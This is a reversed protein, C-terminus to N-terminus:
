SLVFSFAVQSVGLVLESRTLIFELFHLRVSLAEESLKEDSIRTLEDVVCDIMGEKKDWKVIELGVRKQPLSKFIKELIVLSTEVCRDLSLQELCKHLFENQQHENESLLRELHDIAENKVATPARDESLLDWFIGLGYEKEEDGREFRVRRAQKSFDSIFQLVQPNYSPIPLASIRDFILDIQESSVYELLDLILRFVVVQLSEHLNNNWIRNLLDSEIPRHKAVFLIIRSGQKVAQEHELSLIADIIGRKDLFDLLYETSISPKTELDKQLAAERENEELRLSSRSIPEDMSLLYDDKYIDKVIMGDMNYDDIQSSRPPSKPSENAFIVRTMSEIGKLRAEFFPLGLYLHSIELKFCEIEEILPHLSAEWAMQSISDLSGMITELNQDRYENETFRFIHEKAVVFLKTAYGGLFSKSLVGKMQAVLRLFMNMDKCPLKPADRGIRELFVDFGGLGGFENVNMLFFPSSTDIETIEVFKKASPVEEGEDSASEVKLFQTRYEAPPDFEPFRYFHCWPQLIKELVRFMDYNDNGEKILGILVGMVDHFFIMIQQNTFYYTTLSRFVGCVFLIFCFSVFCFLVFCFLVFCFLIFCFVICSLVICYLVICYM